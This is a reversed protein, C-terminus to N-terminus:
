QCSIDNTPKWTPAKRDKTPHHTIKPHHINWCADCMWTDPLVLWSRAPHHCGYLLFCPMKMRPMNLPNRFRLCPPLVLIRICRSWSSHIHCSHAQAFCTTRCNTGMWWSTSAQLCPVSAASSHLRCWDGKRDFNACRCVTHCGSCTHFPFDM